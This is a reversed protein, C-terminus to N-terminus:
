KGDEQAQDMKRSLLWLAQVMVLWMLAISVVVGLDLWNLGFWLYTFIAPYAVLYSKLALPVPAQLYNGIFLTMNFLPYTVGYIAAYLPNLAGIYALGAIVLVERVQDSYWDILAGFHTARGTRRALAGDCADLLLALLFLLFALRPYSTLTALIAMAVAIQSTSVLNPPVRLAALLWVAPKLVELLLQRGPALFVRELRSYSDAPYIQDSM